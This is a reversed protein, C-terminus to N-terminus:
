RQPFSFVLQHHRYRFNEAAPTDLGLQDIGLTQVESLSIRQQCGLNLNLNDAEARPKGRDTAAFVLPKTLKGFSPSPLEPGNWYVPAM